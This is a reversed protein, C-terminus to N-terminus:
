GEEEESPEDEEPGNERAPVRARDRPAVRRGQGGRPDVDVVGGGLLQAPEGPDTRGERLPDDGRARRAPAEPVHGVEDQADVTEPRLGGGRKCRADGEAVSAAGAAPVQARSASAGRQAAM